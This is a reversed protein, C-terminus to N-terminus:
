KFIYKIFGITFEILNNDNEVQIKTKSSEMKNKVWSDMQQKM